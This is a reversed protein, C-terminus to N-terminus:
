VQTQNKVINLLEQRLFDMQSKVAEKTLNLELKFSENQNETINLLEERSFNIQSEM